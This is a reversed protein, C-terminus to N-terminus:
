VCNGNVCSGTTVQPCQRTCIGCNLPDNQLDVCVGIRPSPCCTQGSPCGGCCQEVPICSGGCAKEQPCCQNVPLCVGEPCLRQGSPCVSPPPSSAPGNTGKNKKKRRRQRAGSEDSNLLGVLTAVLGALSGALLRRRSCSAGLAQVFSDFSRTNM